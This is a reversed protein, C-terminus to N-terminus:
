GLVHRVVREINSDLPDVADILLHEDRWPAYNQAIRCAETWDAPTWGAVMVPRGEVRRRWLEQDSCQCVVARFLADHRAAIDRAEQRFDEQPFVADLILTVGHLLNLDAIDLMLRYATLTSGSAVACTELTRDLGDKAIVAWGAHRALAYSLTSKGVGPPGSFLILQTLPTRGARDNMPVLPDSACVLRTQTSMM